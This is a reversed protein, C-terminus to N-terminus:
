FGGHTFGPTPHDPGFPSKMAARTDLFGQGITTLAGGIVGPANYLDEQVKRTKIPGSNETSLNAWTDAGAVGWSAFWTPSLFESEGTREEWDAINSWGVDHALLRGGVVLPMVKSPKDYPLAVPAQMLFAGRNGVTAVAASGPGSGGAGPGPGVGVSGPGAGGGGPGTQVVGAAVMQRAPALHVGVPGNADHIVFTGRGPASHDDGFNGTNEGAWAGTTRDYVQGGPSYDSPKAM